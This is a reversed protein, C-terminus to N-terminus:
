GSWGERDDLVIEWRRDAEAAPQPADLGLERLLIQALTAQIEGLLAREVLHREIRRLAGSLLRARASAGGCAAEGQCTQGDLGLAAPAGYAAELSAAVAPANDGTLRWLELSRSQARQGTDAVDFVYRLRVTEGAIANPIFVACGEIHAVGQGEATYDTVVAQYIQNKILM